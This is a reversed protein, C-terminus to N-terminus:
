VLRVCGCMVVMCVLMLILGLCWWRCRIVCMVRIFWCLVGIWLSCMLVLVLKVVVSVNVGCLVIVIFGCRM